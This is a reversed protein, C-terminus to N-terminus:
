ICVWNIFYICRLMSIEDREKYNKGCMHLVNRCERIGSYSIDKLVNESYGTM